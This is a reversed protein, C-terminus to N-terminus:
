LGVAYGACTCVVVLAPKNAFSRRIGNIERKETCSVVNNNTGFLMYEILWFRLVHRCSHIYYGTGNWVDLSHTSTRLLEGREAVM